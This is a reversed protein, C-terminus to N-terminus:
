KLSITTLPAVYNHTITLRWRRWRRWWRSSRSRGCGSTGRWGSHDRRRRRGSRGGAAAAGATITGAAATGGALSAGTAASTIGVANMGAAIAAPEGVIFGGGLTGGLSSPVPIAMQTATLQPLGGTPGYYTVGPQAVLANFQAQTMTVKTGNALTMVPVAEQALVVSTCLAHLLFLGVLAVCSTQRISRM